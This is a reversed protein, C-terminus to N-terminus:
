QGLRNLVGQNPDASGITPTGQLAEPVQAAEPLAQQLDATLDLAQQQSRIVHPTILVLLEERTRNNDQTGFLSGLIPINKLGPIGSNGRSDNDSILGALGITQGDQIAVRSTVKRETFTPSNLGTTTITSAVGSVEQDVDMTVLGDSGVHPTVNLIVGTPQYEISNIVPADAATTNQSTQSLYPVEDGVQLSAAQGDLVMLEPSSLVRVKTVAQLASIALPAADSGHGSLVFGPFSTDLASTTGASLVANIGGSKFFFQTGYQLQGTLDVEAITADIRVELPVIDIKALVGEIQADEQETAYVILSNNQIDPIIRISDEASGSSATSSLPGLLASAGATASPSAALTGSASGGSGSSQSFGSSALDNGGSGGPESSPAATDSGTSSPLGNDGIGSQQSSNGLSTNSSNTTPQTPQATVNDPTFAQQLLYAADNARSNRLYYVHWSRVTEMQVRDLVGYVRAADNLYSQARTIVLVAGLRELPVVTVANPGKTDGSKALAATFANAFDEADGNSAPFLEYSQGALADIDFAQVLGALAARTAPDGQVVVANSSPDAVIAGGKTVYPQLVTALQSASAYQLPIIQSGGLSAGGALTPSSEVQDTSMVRYLGNSEVLTANNQALLTQLTPLVEDRTLPTVTQLTVTGSVSPDITYNVNLIGGLIKEAVTRIDTDAFDFSIDGTGAAPIAAPQGAATQATGYSASPPPPLSAGGISGSVRGPASVPTPALPVAMVTAAAPAAVQTAPPHAACSGLLLLGALVTPKTKLM